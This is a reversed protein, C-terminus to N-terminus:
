LNTVTVMLQLLRPLTGLDQQTQFLHQQSAQQGHIMLFQFCVYIQVHNSVLVTFYKTITVTYFLFLQMHWIQWKRYFVTVAVLLLIPKNTRLKFITVSLSNCFKEHCTWKSVWRFRWVLLMMVGSSFKQYLHGSRSCSGLIVSRQKYKRLFWNCPGIETYQQIHNRVLPIYM